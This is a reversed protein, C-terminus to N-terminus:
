GFHRLWVLLVGSGEACLHQLNVWKGKRPAWLKLPPAMGGLRTVATSRDTAHGGNSEDDFRRLLQRWHQEATHLREFAIQDSSTSCKTKELDEFSAFGHETLLDGFRGILQGLRVVDKPEQIKDLVEEIADAISAAAAAM